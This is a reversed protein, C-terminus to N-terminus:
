VPQNQEKIGIGNSRPAKSPNLEQRNEPSFDLSDVVYIM